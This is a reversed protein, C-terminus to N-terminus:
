FQEISSVQFSMQKKHQNEKQTLIHQIWTTKEEPSKASLLITKGKSKNSLQFTNKIKQKKIM